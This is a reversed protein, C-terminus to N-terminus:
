QTRLAQLDRWALPKFQPRLLLSAPHYTVVLPVSQGDAMAYSLLQERLTDLPETRETLLAAAVQGLALIGRPRVASIQARLFVSCAEIADPEPPRNGLPRCKVLHTMYVSSSRDVGVAQLMADLLQGAKGQFPRGARDDVADPAEGVILWDPEEQGEGFVVKGRSQHLACRTCVAAHASLEVLSGPLAPVAGKDAAPEPLATTALAGPQVASGSFAQAPHQDGVPPKSARGRALVQLAQAAATRHNPSHAQAPSPVPGPVNGHADPTTHPGRATATATAAPFGAPAGAIGPAGSQRTFLRKDLGLESLWARQLASPLPWDAVPQVHLTAADPLVTGSEPNM